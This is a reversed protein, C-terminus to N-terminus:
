KHKNSKMLDIIRQLRLQLNKLLVDYTADGINYFFKGLTSDDGTFLLKCGLAPLLLFPIYALYFVKQNYAQALNIVFILPLLICGLLGLIQVIGPLKKM